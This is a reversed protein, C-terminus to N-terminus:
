HGDVTLGHMLNCHMVGCFLASHMVSNQVPVRKILKNNCVSLSGAISKM